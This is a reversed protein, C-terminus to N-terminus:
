SSRGSERNILQRLDGLKERPKEREDRRKLEEKRKEERRKRERRQEFMDDSLEGDEIIALGSERLLDQEARRKDLSERADPGQSKVLKDIKEYRIKKKRFDYIM